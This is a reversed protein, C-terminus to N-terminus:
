RSSSAAEPQSGRPEKEARAPHPVFYPGIALGDLRGDLFARV